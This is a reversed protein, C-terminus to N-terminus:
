YPTVLTVQKFVGLDQVNRSYIPLGLRVGMAAIFCDLIELQHSLHYIEFQAMAWQADQESPFIVPYPTLLKIVKEQDIRDQAGLVVEMRVISPIALVLNPNNQMWSTAPGYRRLIDVLINTDLLGVPQSM